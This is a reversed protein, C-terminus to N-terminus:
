SPGGLQPLRVESFRMYLLNGRSELYCEAVLRVLYEAYFIHSLEPYREALAKETRMMIRAVKLWRESAESLIVGRIIQLDQVNLREAAAREKEDTPPNAQPIEESM